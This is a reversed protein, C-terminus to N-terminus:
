VLLAMLHELKPGDIQLLKVFVEFGDDLFALGQQFAHALHLEEIRSATASVEQNDSVLTQTEKFHINQSEHPFAITTAIDQKYIGTDNSEVLEIANLQEIERMLNSHERKPQCLVLHVGFEVLVKSDVGFGQRQLVDRLNDATIGTTDIPILNTRM